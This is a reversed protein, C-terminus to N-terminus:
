RSSTNKLVSLGSTSAMVGSGTVAISYVEFNLPETKWHNSEMVTILSTDDDWSLQFDFPTAPLIEAPLAHSWAQQKGIWRSATGTFPTKEMLVKGDSNLKYDRISFTIRFKNLEDRSSLELAVMPAWHRDPRIGDVQLRGSIGVTEMGLEPRCKKIKGPAVDLVCNPRTTRTVTSLDFTAPKISKIHRHECGASFTLLAFTCYRFIIRTMAMGKTQALVMM